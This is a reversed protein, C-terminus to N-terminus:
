VSLLEGPITVGVVVVLAGTIWLLPGSVFRRLFPMVLLLPITYLPIDPIPRECREYFLASGNEALECQANLIFATIGLVISGVAAWIAAQRVGRADALDRTWLWIAVLYVPLGVILILFAM